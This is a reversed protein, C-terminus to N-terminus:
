ARAYIPSVEPDHLDAGPVYNLHVFALALDTPMLDRESNTVGSDGDGSLDCGPTYLGLAAVMPLGERRARNIIDEQEQFQARFVPVQAPSAIDTYLSPPGSLSPQNRLFATAEPSMTAAQRENVPLAMPM